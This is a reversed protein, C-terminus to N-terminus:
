ARRTGGRRSKRAAGTGSSQKKTATKKRSAATAAKKKTGTRSGSTGGAASAGRASATKKKVAKTGAAKKPPAKAASKKKTTKKTVPKKTAAKTRTTAKKTRTSAKKRAAPARATRSGTGQARPAAGGQRGSTGAPTRDGLWRAVVDGSGALEQEMTKVAAALARGGSVVLGPGQALRLDVEHEAELWDQEPSGGCFGRAEARLYAAERIMCERQESNVSHGGLAARAKGSLGSVNIRGHGVEHLFQRLYPLFDAGFKDLAFESLERVSRGAELMHELATRLYVRSADYTSEDLRHQEYM